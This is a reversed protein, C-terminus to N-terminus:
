ISQGAIGFKGDEVMNKTMSRKVKIYEKKMRFSIQILIVMVAVWRCIEIQIHNDM